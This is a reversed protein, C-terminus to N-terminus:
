GARASPTWWSTWRRGADRGPRGPRPGGRLHPLHGPLGGAQPPPGARRLVARPGRRALVALRGARRDAGAAPVPRRRADARGAAAADRGAGAGAGGRAAAGGTASGTHVVVGSRASRGAGACRTACRARGVARGDGRHALRLQDSVPRPRVGPGGSPRARRASCRTRRRTARDPHGLRASQRRLGARDRRGDGPRVGLGVKALGGAVPVHGGVPNRSAAHGTRRGPGTCAGQDQHHDHQGEPGERGAARRVPEDVPTASPSSRAPRGGVEFGRRGGATSRATARRGEAPSTRSRDLM